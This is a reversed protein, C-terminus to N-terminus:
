ANQTTKTCQFKGIFTLILETLQGKALNAVRLTEDHSLNVDMMGAGMNTLVSVVVVKLGCHRAVLVEPVTSMGVADAGLTQFARIEAPTEFSPGLTGIYVGEALPINKEKAAAQMQERLTKDYANEMAVFRPGFEEDNLGVLPNSFQLNIHDNIVMLSGPKNKKRLSGSANTALLYECGLLKLTRILNQVIRNSIGEYLHARGKLCVVPVNNLKGIHLSGSHGEVSCTHFGPLQEYPIVVPEKILDALEGSGSGLIIGVKPSFGPARSTIIQAASHAFSLSM